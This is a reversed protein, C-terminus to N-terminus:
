TGKDTGTCNYTSHQGEAEVNKVHNAVAKKGAPDPAAQACGRIADMGGPGLDNINTTYRRLWLEPTLSKTGDV